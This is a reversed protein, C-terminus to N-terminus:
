QLTRQLEMPEKAIVVADAESENRVCIYKRAVCVGLLVMVLAMIGIVAVVWVPVANPNAGPVSNSDRASKTTTTGGM